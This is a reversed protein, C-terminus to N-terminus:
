KDKLEFQLKFESPVNLQSKTELLQLKIEEIVLHLHYYKSSIM